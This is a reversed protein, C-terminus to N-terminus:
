KAFTLTPAQLLNFDKLLCGSLLASGQLQVGELGLLWLLARFWFKQWSKHWSLRPIVPTTRSGLRHHLRPLCVLIHVGSEPTHGGVM